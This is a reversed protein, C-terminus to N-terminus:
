KLSMDWFIGVFEFAWLACPQVSPEQLTKVYCSKMIELNLIYVLDWTSMTSTFIKTTKRINLQLLCSTWLQNPHLYMGQNYIPDGRLYNKAVQNAHWWKPSSNPVQFSTTTQKIYEHFIMPVVM